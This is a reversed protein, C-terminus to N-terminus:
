LFVPHTQQLCSLKGTRRGKFCMAGHATKQRFTYVQNCDKPENLFFFFLLLPTKQRKNAAFGVQQNIIVSRRHHQSPTSVIPTSNPLTNRGVTDQNPQHKHASVPFTMVAATDHTHKTKQKKKEKKKKYLSDQCKVIM